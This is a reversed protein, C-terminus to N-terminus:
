FFYVISTIKWGLYLYEYDEVDGDRIL